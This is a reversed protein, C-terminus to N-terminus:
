GKTNRYFKFPIDPSLTPFITPVMSANITSANQTKQAIPAKEKLMGKASLFIMSVSGIVALILLIMFDKQMLNDIGEGKSHTSVSDDLTYSNADSAIEKVIHAVKDIFSQADNILKEFVLKSQETGSSDRPEPSDTLM